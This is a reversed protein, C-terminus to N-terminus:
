AICRGGSHIRPQNRKHSVGLALADRRRAQLPGRQVSDHPLRVHRFFSRASHPSFFIQFFSSQPGVGDASPWRARPVSWEIIKGEPTVMMAVGGCSEFIADVDSARSYAAWTKGMSGVGIDPATRELDADEALSAYMAEIQERGKDMKTYPKEKNQTFRLYRQSLIEQACARSDVWPTPILNPEAWRPAIFAVLWCLLNCAVAQLLKPNERVEDGEEVAPQKPPTKRDTDARRKGSATNNGAGKGKGAATAASKSNSKETSM